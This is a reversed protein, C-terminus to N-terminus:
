FQVWDIVTSIVSGSPISISKTTESKLLKPTEHLPAVSPDIFM